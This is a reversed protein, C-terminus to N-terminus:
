EEPHIQKKDWKRKMRVAVDSEDIQYKDYFAFEDEHNIMRSTLFSVDMDYESNDTILEIIERAVAVTYNIPFLSYEFSCVYSQKYIIDAMEKWCNPNLRSREEISALGELYVM